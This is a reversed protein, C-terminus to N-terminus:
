DCQRKNKRGFPFLVRVSTLSDQDVFKNGQAKKPNLILHLVGGFTLSKSRFDGFNVKFIIM